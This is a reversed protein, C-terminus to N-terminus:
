LVRGHKKVYYAKNRFFTSSDGSKMENKHILRVENDIIFVGNPHISHLTDCFDTDEWSSGIFEEDFRAGNNRFAICASPLYGNVIQYRGSLDPQINMMLAPECKENILRASVMTVNKNHILLNILKESWGKFFGGIDDDMMIVYPAKSRSLTYNRNTSACTKFGSHIINVGEPLTPEIEDILDSIENYYKCSPILIDYEM